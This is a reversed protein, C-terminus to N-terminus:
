LNFFCYKLNATYIFFVLGLIFLIWNSFKLINIKDCQRPIDKKLLKDLQSKNVEPLNTQIKDKFIEVDSKIALIGETMNQFVVKHMIYSFIFSTILLLINQIINESVNFAKIFFIYATPVIFINVTAKSVQSYTRDTFEQFYGTSATKIKEFSFGSLYFKFSQNYNEILVSWKGINLEKLDDYNYDVNLKM